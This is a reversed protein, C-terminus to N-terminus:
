TDTESTHRWKRGGVSVAVDPTKLGPKVITRWWSGRYHDGLELDPVEYGISHEPM